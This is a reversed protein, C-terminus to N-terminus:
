RPHQIFIYTNIDNIMDHLLLCMHINYVVHFFNLRLKLLDDKLIKKLIFIKLINLDINKDVM